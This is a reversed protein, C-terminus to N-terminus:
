SRKGLVDRGKDTLKCVLWDPKIPNFFWPEAWGHELCSRITRAPIERGNEDFLPLKGGAQTLGMKLWRQQAESPVAVRQPGNKESM